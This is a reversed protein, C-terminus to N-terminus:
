SKLQIRSVFFDGINLQASQKHHEIKIGNLRGRWDVAEAEILDEILPRAALEQLAETNVGQALRM